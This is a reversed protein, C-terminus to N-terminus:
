NHQREQLTVGFCPPPLRWPSHPSMFPENVGHTRNVKMVHEPRKGKLSTGPREPVAILTM